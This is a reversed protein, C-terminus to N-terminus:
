KKCVYTMNRTSFLFYFYAFSLFLKQREFIDMKMKTNISFREKRGRDGQLKRGRERHVCICKNVSVRLCVYKLFIGNYMYNQLM